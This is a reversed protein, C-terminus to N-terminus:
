KCRSVVLSTNMGAIGHANIIVHDHNFYELNSSIRLPCGPDPFEWNVSPPVYQGRLGLASAAAQMAPAGGLANGLAGKISHTLIEDARSGFVKKILRAEAADITTHGPAWANIVDIDDARLRADALADAMAAEMGSCVDGVTDNAFAYGDVFCYGPRPSDEPELVFMAAGESVTGTTRWLDFPRCHEAANDWTSPTLNVRRFELLPHKFLPAESGGAIVVDAEGNAVMAAGRGIADLGSCCSSQVALSRANVRLAEAIASGVNAVSVTYILRPIIGKVGKEAVSELERNIGGFDMISTGTIVAPNARQIESVEIGADRVALVGAIAGLLSHRALHNPLERRNVLRSIEDDDVEAAIFPGWDPGLRDFRKIRSISEQIGAEFAARGIGAPTVPGVGTVKVRRRRM